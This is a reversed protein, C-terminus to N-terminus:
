REKTQAQALLYKSVQSLYAAQQAGDPIQDPPLAPFEGLTPADWWHHLLQDAM